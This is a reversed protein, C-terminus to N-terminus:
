MQVRGTVRKAVAVDEYTEGETMEAPLERAEDRDLETEAGESDIVADPAVVFELERARFSVSIDFDVESM